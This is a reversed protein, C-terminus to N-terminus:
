KKDDSKKDDSKKEDKTEEVKKGAAMAKFKAELGPVCAFCQSEPVKHEKCWDGKKKFAAALKPHCLVCVDEPVGHDKCLVVAKPAEKDEAMSPIALLLLVFGAVVTVGIFKRSM